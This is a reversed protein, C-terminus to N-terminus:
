LPGTFAVVIWGIAFALALLAMYAIANLCAPAKRDITLRGPFVNAAHWKERFQELEVKSLQGKIELVSGYGDPSPGPM